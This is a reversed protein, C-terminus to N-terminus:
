DSTIKLDFQLLPLSNHHHHHHHPTVLYLSHLKQPSWYNYFSLSNFFGRPGATQSWGISGNQKLRDLLSFMRTFLRDLLPLIIPECLIVCLILFVCCMRGDTALTGAAGASIRM